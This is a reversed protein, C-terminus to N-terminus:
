EGKNMIDVIVRNVVAMDYLKGSAKLDKMIQGRMKKDIIYDGAIALIDARIVNEDSIVSPAFEAIVRRENTYKIMLDPRSAPCTDIQEQISKQIKLLEADVISNPINKRDGGSDIVRKQIQAIFNSIITKRTMDNQKYATMMADHLIKYTM